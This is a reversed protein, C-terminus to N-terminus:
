RCRRPPAAEDRQAGHGLPDRAEDIPAVAEDEALNETAPSPIPMPVPKVAPPVRGAELIASIAATGPTEPTWACTMSGNLVLV